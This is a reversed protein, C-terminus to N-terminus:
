PAAPTLTVNATRQLAGEASSLTMTGDIRDATVTARLTGTFGRDGPDKRRVAATLTGATEGRAASAVDGAVLAPGLPGELTGTARGSAADIALTIAGDGTGGGRDTHAWTKGFDPPVDLSAAASKYTGRWTKPAAAPAATASPAAAVSSAPTTSASPAPEAPSPGSPKSCGM